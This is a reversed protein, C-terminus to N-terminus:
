VIFELKEPYGQTYDYSEIEYPDTMHSVNLLHHSTQNYCKIAYDELSILLQHLTDVNIIYPISNLWLTMETKGLAKLTIISNMLGVRTAKDLWTDVGNVKFSNVSKSADYKEINSVVQQKVYNLVEQQVSEITQTTGKVLKKEWMITCDDQIKPFVRIYTGKTTEILEQASNSNLIVKNVM